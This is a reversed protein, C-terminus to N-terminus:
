QATRKVLLPDVVTPRTAPREGYAPYTVKKQLRDLGVRHLAPVTTPVPDTPPVLDPAPMPVPRSPGGDYRYSDNARPQPAREVPAPSYDVAPAAARAGPRIVISGSFLRGQYGVSIAPRSPAASYETAAPPAQYYAPVPAPVPLPAPASYYTPAYYVPAAYAVPACCVPACAYGCRWPRWCCVPLTDADSATKGQMTATAVNAPRALSGVGGLLVTDDGAFAPTVLLLAAVGALAKYRAIM